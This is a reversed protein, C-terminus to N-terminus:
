KYLEVISRILFALSRRAHPPVRSELLFRFSDTDERQVALILGSLWREDFSLEDAGPRHLKPAWDTADAFSRLFAETYNKCAQDRNASLVACAQFLDLNPKARCRLAVLRIFNLVPSATPAAVFPAPNSAPDRAQRQLM